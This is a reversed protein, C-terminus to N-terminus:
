DTADFFSKASQVISYTTQRSYKLWLNDLKKVIDKNELSLKNTEVKGIDTLKYFFEFNGNPLENAHEDIFGEQILEKVSKQLDESYPGYYYNKYDFTFPCGFEKKALIIFKQLRIRYRFIGDKPKNMLYLIGLRDVTRM